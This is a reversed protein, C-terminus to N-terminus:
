ASSPLLPRVQCSNTRRNAKRVAQVGRCQNKGNRAMGRGASVRLADFSRERRGRSRGEADVKVAFYVFDLAAQLRDRLKEETRVGQKAVYVYGKMPRGTFDMPRVHSEQLAKEASDPGLRLVLDDNIVGCCMRRGVM